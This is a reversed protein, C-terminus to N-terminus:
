HAAGDQALLARVLAENVSGTVELGNEKQFARIAARTKEGMVGDAPGADFGRRNLLAQINGIAKKMDISGTAQADTRWAQPVEVINADAIPERAQWLKAKAQAKALDAPAMAEAIEDRKAAADEDGTRAVIAFWKYAEGLDRKMGVGKAALIGLNFQSDVVGLDAAEQFWRAAEDNDTTGDAGMAYLVGLNHMASANGQEAARRYWKKAAAIDREVGTGKEYFHGIRYQAPALGREAAAEYWLAAQSLDAEVDVGEAYRNGIEYLAVPDGEAAAQRLAAPEIGAPIDPLAPAAKPADDTRRPAEAAAPAPAAALEVAEQGGMDAAVDELTDQAAPAAAQPEQAEAMRVPAAEAEPAADTAPAASVVTAEEPMQAMRVPEGSGGMVVTAGYYLGGALLVVGGLSLLLTNRRGRLVRGLGLKGGKAVAENRSDKLIEAEAAAAQAARRAAAIFDARAADSSEDDHVRQADRVRRMISNLDPAGSGPELPENIREPDLSRDEGAQEEGTLVPEARQEQEDARSRRGAIARSLGGLMSRKAEQRPAAEADERLAAEAAAAAVEAPTRGVRPAPEHATEDYGDVPDISPAHAIATREGAGGAELAGLREVIKLLTDHIAEFTRANREDSKRALAELAQLEERLPEDAQGRALGLAEIAQEAAQRATDMMAARSEGISREIQELRPALGEVDPAAHGPRELYASLSAIQAQLNRIVEPDVTEVAATRDSLRGAIDELRTELTRLVSGEERAEEIRAALEAFRSDMAEMLGSEDPRRITDLKDSIQGITAALREVTPEPTEVRLAIEDVRESLANLREVIAAAPSDEVLENIQNALSAIRAEIRELVQPDFGPAQARVTSAVIARSIEDLREEIMAYLGPEGEHHRSVFQELAVALARLREELTDLSLSEPLSEIAAGIEELRAGLGEIAPDPSASLRSELAEWREDLARVTEERALKDLSAKVQELELRLAKTSRDDSREALLTIARSLQEFEANLEATWSSQPVLEMIRALEERLADFERKLGSGMVARMEERLAKMEGALADTAARQEQERRAPDLGPAPRRPTAAVQSLRQMRRAIDGDVAEPRRREGLARELRSELQELTRSIDELATGSRRQRGANLGDLYSRNTNM